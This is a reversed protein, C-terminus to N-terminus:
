GPSSSMMSLRDSMNKKPSGEFLSARVKKTEHIEIVKEAEM